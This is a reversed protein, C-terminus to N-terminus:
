GIKPFDVNSDSKYQALDDLKLFIDMATEKQITRPCGIEPFDGNSDSIFQALNDLNLFTQLSKVKTNHSSM